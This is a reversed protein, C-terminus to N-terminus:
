GNSKIADRIQLHAGFIYAVFKFLKGILKPIRKKDAKVVLWVIFMPGVFRYELNQYQTPYVMWKTEVRAFPNM